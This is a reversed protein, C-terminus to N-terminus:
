RIARCKTPSSTRKSSTTTRRTPGTRRASRSSMSRTFGSRDESPEPRSAQADPNRDDGSVAPRRRGPSGDPGQQRAPRTRTSTRSSICGSGSGAPAARILADVPRAMTIRYIDVDIWGDAPEKDILPVLRDQYSDKPPFCLRPDIPSTPYNRVLTPPVNAFNAYEKTNTWINDFMTMFSPLSSSPSISSRTKTTRTGSGAARIGDPQLERGVMRRRGSRRLDDAELPLHRRRHAQADPHRRRLAQRAAATRRIRRTPARTWSSACRCAASRRTSLATVFRDDKFFWVGVDIGQTENNILDLLPARCDEVLRRM